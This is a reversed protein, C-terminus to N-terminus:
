VEMLKKEGRIQEMVLNKMNELKKVQAYKINVQNKAESHELIAQNLDNTIKDLQELLYRLHEPSDMYGSEKKKTSINM